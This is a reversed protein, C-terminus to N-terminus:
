RIIEALKQATKEHGSARWHSDRSYYDDKGLFQRGDVLGAGMEEVTEADLPFNTDMGNKNPIIVIIPESGDSRIDMVFQAILAETLAAANSNTDSFGKLGRKKLKSRQVVFSLRNRVLNWAESDTFLWRIPPISYLLERTRVAPLYAKGTRSVGGEGNLEFLDSVTNNGMDNDFYFLVVTDPHYERGLHRYTVLLEAQGFGSVSLNIVEFGNEDDSDTGKLDELVASVVQDDEVGHGFIFSDGLMLVRRVGPAKTIPYERISRMGASNTSIRVSYEGPVYHRTTVNPQNARVGYGSDIVFRPAVPEDFFIRVLGEILLGATAFGIFISIVIYFVRRMPGHSSNM